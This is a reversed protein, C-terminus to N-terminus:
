TNKWSWAASISLKQRVSRKHPARAERHCRASTSSGESVHRKCPSCELSTECHLHWGVPSFDQLQLIKLVIFKKKAFGHWPEWQLAQSLGWLRVAGPSTIHQKGPEGPRSYHALDANWAKQQPSLLGGLGPLCARGRTGPLQQTVAIFGVLIDGVRRLQCCSQAESM